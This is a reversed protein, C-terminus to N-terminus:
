CLKGYKLLTLFQKNRIVSIGFWLLITFGIAESIFIVPDSVIAKFMNGLVGEFEISTFQLGLVPWFFTGPVGWMGDLILHILIGAALTLMWVQKKCYYLLLGTIALLLFFLLTHSFIRGNHFYNRFFYMGIPKDIIDPLMSGVLLIRIDIYKSLSNFWTLKEFPKEKRRQLLNAIVAGAGLAIGTHAFLLM